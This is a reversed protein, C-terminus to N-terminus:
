EPLEASVRYMMRESVYEHAMSFQGSGQDLANMKTQAAVISEVLENKQAELSADSFSISSVVAADGSLEMDDHHLLVFDYLEQRLQYTTRLSREYEQLYEIAQEQLAAHSVGDEVWVSLVDEQFDQNTVPSNVLDREAARLRMLVDQVAREDHKRQQIAQRSDFGSFLEFRVVDSNALELYASYWQLVIEDDVGLSTLYENQASPSSGEDNVTVLSMVRRKVAEENYQCRVEAFVYYDGPESLILEGEYVAGEQTSILDFPARLGRQDYVYTTVRKQTCSDLGRTYLQVVISEGSSVVQPLASLEVNEQSIEVTVDVTFAPDYKVVWVGPQPDLVSYWAYSDDVISFAYKDVQEQVVSATIEEGGPSVLTVGSNEPSFIAENAMPSDISFLALSVFSDLYVSISGSESREVDVSLDPSTSGSVAVFDTASLFQDGSGEVVTEDMGSLFVFAAGIVVCVILLLGAVPYVNSFAKSNM